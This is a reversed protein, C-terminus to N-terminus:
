CSPYRTVANRSGSHGWGVWRARIASCASSATAATAARASARRGAVGPWAQGRAPMPRATTDALVALVALPAACQALSHRRTIHTHKAAKSLWDPRAVPEGLAIENETRRWERKKELVFNLFFFFIQSWRQYTDFYSPWWLPRSPGKTRTKFISPRLKLM